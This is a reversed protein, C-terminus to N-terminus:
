TNYKLRVDILSREEFRKLGPEKDDTTIAPQHSFTWLAVSLFLTCDRFLQVLWADRTKTNLLTGPWEIAEVHVCQLAGQDVDHPGLLVGQFTFMKPKMVAQASWAWGPVATVRVGLPGRHALPFSTFSTRLICVVVDKCRTQIDM